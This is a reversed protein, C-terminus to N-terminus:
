SLPSSLLAGGSPLYLPRHRLRAWSAPTAVARSGMWRWTGRALLVTRATLWTTSTRQTQNGCGCSSEFEVAKWCAETCECM